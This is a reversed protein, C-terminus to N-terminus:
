MKFTYLFQVNITFQLKVINSNNQIKILYICGKNFMNEFVNCFRISGLGKFLCHGRLPQAGMVCKEQIEAISSLFSNIPIIEFFHLSFSMLSMNEGYPWISSLRMSLPGSPSLRPSFELAHVGDSRWGFCIVCVHHSAMCVFVPISATSHINQSTACVLIFKAKAAELKEGWPM